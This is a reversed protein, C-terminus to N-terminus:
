DKRQKAAEEALSQLSYFCEAPSSQLFIASGVCIDNVGARALLAVNERKIGGDVGIHFTPYERRFEAIKKLVQAQFKAGYFGPFVTMFLFTDVKGVFPLLSSVPTDPNAALGVELGLQRAQRIVDDPSDTAEIHFTVRRAGLNKFAAFSAAPNVVMLHAEWKFKIPIGALDKDSVSVSPVFHGDMFDFQVYPAFEQVQSVMTRLAKADSTLIAPVIRPTM